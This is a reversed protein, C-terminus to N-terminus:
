SEDMPARKSFWFGPGATRRGTVRECERCLLARHRAPNYCYKLKGGKCYLGEVVRIGGLPPSATSRSTRNFKLGAAAVREANPTQCPGGFASSSGFGADDILVILVNPAGTPPRLQGIPPFKTDPDKADYTILGTRPPDPIPLSNRPLSDRDSM